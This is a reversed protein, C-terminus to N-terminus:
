RKLNAKHNRLRRGFRVTAQRAFKVSFHHRWWIPVNEANSAKQALFEGTVPSNGASQDVGSYVTRYVITLSTIQSAMGGNHRWQLSKVLLRVCWQCLVRVAVFCLLSCVPYVSRPVQIRCWIRISISTIRDNCPGCFVDNSINNIDTHKWELENRKVWIKYWKMKILFLDASPLIAIYLFSWTIVKNCIYSQSRQILM